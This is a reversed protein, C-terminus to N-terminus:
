SLTADQETQLEAAVADPIVPLPSLLSAMVLSPRLGTPSMLYM